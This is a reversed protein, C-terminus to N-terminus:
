RQKKRGNEMRENRNIIFIEHNNKEKFFVCAIAVRYDKRNKKPCLAEWVGEAVAEANEGILELELPKGSFSPLPDKDEGTYTAVMTGKGAILPFEFFIRELSRDEARKIICLAAIEDNIVCGSIRPTFAPFDPEYYWKKLSLSLIEVANKSKNLSAFIDSTQKGNSVAIGTGLLVAPYILLDVNGEKLTNVDTPKVFLANGEREIKRAQSSPSRGTIGYVVIKEKGSQSKGIIIVRGPYELESLGNLGKKM